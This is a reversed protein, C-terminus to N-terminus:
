SLASESGILESRYQGKGKEKPPWNPPWGEKSPM